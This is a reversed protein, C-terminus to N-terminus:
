SGVKFDSIKGTKKDVTVRTYYDPARMQTKSVTMPFTIVFAEATEEVVPQVEVPIRMAKRSAEDAIRVAEQRSISTATAAPPTTPPPTARCSAMFLMLLGLTMTKM